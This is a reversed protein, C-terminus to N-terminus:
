AGRWWMSAGVYGSSPSVGCVLRILLNDFIGNALTALQVVSAAASADKADPILILSGSAAISATYLLMSSSAGWGGAQVYVSLTVSQNLTNSFALVHSKAFTAYDPSSVAADHVSTDRIAGDALAGAGGNNFLVIRGSDPTVILGRRASVRARGVQGTTLETVTTQYLGAVPFIEGAAAAADSAGTKIWKFVTDFANM